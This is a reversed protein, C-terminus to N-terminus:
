DAKRSVAGEDCGGAPPRVFRLWACSPEQRPPSPAKEHKGLHSNGTPCSGCGVLARPDRRSDLGEPRQYAIRHNKENNCM